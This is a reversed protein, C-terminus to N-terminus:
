KNLLKVVTGDSIIPSMMARMYKTQSAGRSVVGYNEYIEVDDITLTGITSIRQVTESMM